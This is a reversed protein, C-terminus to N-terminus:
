PTASSTSDEPSENTDLTKELKDVADKVEGENNTYKAWESTLATLTNEYKALLTRNYELEPSADQQTAMEKKQEEYSALMQGIMKKTNEDKAEAYQKELAQRSAEMTKSTSAMMKNTFEASSVELVKGKVWLYEQTNYGLDKAARIDATAFDAVSGLAGLGAMLGSVSQDGAKKADAEHKQMEERAVRAIERERERVKVYMQIQKDTLRGDAPATYEDAGVQELLDLTGHKELDKKISAQDIKEKAKCSLLTLALAILITFRRM